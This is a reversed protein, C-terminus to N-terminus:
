ATGIAGTGGDSAASSAAAAEQNRRHQAMAPTASAGSAITALGLGFGKLPNAWRIRGDAPELCFVEGKTTAFLDNGDLVVNVFDGGKLSTQWVIAGTARDLAIVTGKIGVHVISNVRAM